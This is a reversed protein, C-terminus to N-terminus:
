DLFPQGKSNLIPLNYKKSLPTILKLCNDLDLIKVTDDIVFAVPKWSGLVFEFPTKCTKKDVFLISAYETYKKGHEATLGSWQNTQLDGNGALSVIGQLVVGYPANSHWAKYPPTLYSACCVEVHAKQAAFLKELKEFSCWHILTFKSLFKQDAHKAWVERLYIIADHYKDKKILDQFNSLENDDMFHSGYHIKPNLVM